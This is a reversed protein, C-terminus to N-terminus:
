MRHLASGNCSLLEAGAFINRLWDFYAMEGSTDSAMYIYM